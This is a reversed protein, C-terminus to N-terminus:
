PVNQRARGGALRSEDRRDRPCRRLDAVKRRRSRIREGPAVRLLKAQVELPMEGVEDLFITGGDALEFRGVRRAIAGTFAGKEHGFLESEVLGTPLAACNIKILPKDRRKSNFHIARAILEKGTGTEGCILVSTDTPAVRRVNELVRILSPSAGVIEEYNHDTQIEEQLYLNEAKLRTQEQEMLVRDTIDVIMTRTYQGTPDPKSWWQVWVPKGNDKRRLELVVGSTDTGKGVSAFAERVRRQADPNDPM